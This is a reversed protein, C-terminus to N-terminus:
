RPGCYTEKIQQFTASHMRPRRLDYNGDLYAKRSIGIAQQRIDLSAGCQNCHRGVGGIVHILQPPHPCPPTIGVITVGRVSEPLPDIIEPTSNTLDVIGLRFEKGKECFWDRADDLFM